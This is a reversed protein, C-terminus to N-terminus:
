SDDDTLYETLYNGRTWLPVAWSLTYTHGIFHSYKHNTYCDFQDTRSNYFIGGDTKGDPITLRFCPRGHRKLGEWIPEFKQQCFGLDNPNKHAIYVRSPDLWHAANIAPITLSQDMGPMNWHIVCQGKYIGRTARNWLSLDAIRNMNCLGAPFTIFLDQCFTILSSNEYQEVPFEGHQVPLHWRTNHPEVLYPGRSCYAGIEHLANLTTRWNAPSNAKLWAPTKGIVDLNDLIFKYVMM